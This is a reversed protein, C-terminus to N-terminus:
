KEQKKDPWVMFYDVWNEIKYCRFYKYGVINQEPRERESPLWLPLVNGSVTIKCYWPLMSSIIIWHNKLLLIQLVRSIKTFSFWVLFWHIDLGSFSFFFSITFMKKLFESPLFWIAKPWPLMRALVEPIRAPFKLFIMLERFKDNM